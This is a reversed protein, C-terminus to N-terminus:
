RKLWKFITFWFNFRSRSHIEPQQSVWFEVQQFSIALPLQRIAEFTKSTNINRQM